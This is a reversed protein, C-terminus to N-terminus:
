LGYDYTVGLDDSSGPSQDLLLNAAGKSCTVDFEIVDNAAMGIDTQFTYVTTSGLPVTQVQAGSQVSFNSITSGAPTYVYVRQLQHGVQAESNAEGVIASPMDVASGLTNNLEFRVHYTQDATKTVTSVRKLYWDM